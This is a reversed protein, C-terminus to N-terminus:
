GSQLCYKASSGTKSRARIRSQLEVVNQIRRDDARNLIGIVPFKKDRHCGGSKIRTLTPSPTGVAASSSSTSTGDDMLNYYQLITDRLYITDEPTRMAYHPYKNSRTTHPILATVRPTEANSLGTTTTTTTTTPLESVITVNFADQYAQIIGKMFRNLEGSAPDKRWVLAWTMNNNNNRNNSHGGNNNNNTTTTNSSSSSSCYRWWTICRYLQQMGHAMQFSQGVIAFECICTDMNLFQQSQKIDNTDGSTTTTKTTVDKGGGDGESSSSGGFGHFRFLDSINHYSSMKRYTVSYVSSINECVKSRRQPITTTTTTGASSVSQSNLVATTAFNANTAQNQHGMHETTNTTTHDNTNGDLASAVIQPLTSRISEGQAISSLSKM